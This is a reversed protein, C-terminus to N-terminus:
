RRRIRPAMLGVLGLVLLMVTSPEPIHTGSWVVNSLASELGEGNVASIRYQYSAGPLLGTDSYFTSASTAIEVGDRYIYYLDVGSESDVSPDWSLNIEIKSQPTGLLNNPTSALTTNVLIKYLEGDGAELSLSLTSEPISALHLHGTEKDYKGLGAITAPNLQITFDHGNEFSKNVFMLYSRSSDDVFSGYVMEGGSIDTVLSNDLGTARTPPNTHHVGVSTLNNLVPALNEIEAYIDQVVYYKPTPEHSVATILGSGAETFEPANPTTYTFSSLGKFGYALATYMQWRLQGATPDPLIDRIPTALYISWYPINEQIGYHRITALNDYHSDDYLYHDFALVKPRVTQVFSSVYEDYTAVGLQGQTAYNPYLALVPLTDPDYQLLKQQVYALAEFEDASPEDTLYYGLLAPHSGYQSALSEARADIWLKDANTLGDAPTPDVEAFVGEVNFDVMGLMGSAQVLDLDIGFSSDKAVNIGVAAMQNYEAATSEISFYTSDFYTFVFPIEAQAVQYPSLLLSVTLLRFFLTLPRKRTPLFALLGAVALLAVASPEPILTASWTGQVQGAIPWVGDLIQHGGPGLMASYDTQGIGDPGGLGPIPELGTSLLQLSSDSLLKGEFTERGFAGNSAFWDFYGELDFDVGNPIQSTFHLSSDNWTLGNGEGLVDWLGATLDQAPLSQSCTTLILAICTIIPSCPRM